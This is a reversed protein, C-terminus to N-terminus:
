FAPASASDTAEPLRDTWARLNGAAIFAFLACVGFAFTGVIAIALGVAEDAGFIQETVYAVLM